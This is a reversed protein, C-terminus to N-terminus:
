ELASLQALLEPPLQAEPPAWDVFGKRSRFSYYGVWRGLLHVPSDPAFALEVGLVWASNLSAPWRMGNVLFKAGSVHGVGDDESINCRLTLPQGTDAFGNRWRFAAWLADSPQGRYLDLHTIDPAM